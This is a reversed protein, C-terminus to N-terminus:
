YHSLTEPGHLPLYTKPLGAVVMPISKLPFVLEATALGGVDPLMTSTKEIVEPTKEETTSGKDSEEASATSESSDVHGFYGQLIELLSSTDMRALAIKIQGLGEHRLQAAKEELHTALELLNLGQFYFILFLILTLLIIPYTPVLM